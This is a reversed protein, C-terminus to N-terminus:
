AVEEVIPKSGTAVPADQATGTVDEVIPGQSIIQTDDPEEVTPASKPESSIAYAFNSFLLSALIIKKM